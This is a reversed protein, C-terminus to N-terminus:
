IHIYEIYIHMRIHSKRYINTHSMTNLIMMYHQENRSDVAVFFTRKNLVCKIIVFSHFARSMYFIDDDYDVDVDMLM